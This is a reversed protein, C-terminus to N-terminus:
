TALKTEFKALDDALIQDILETVGEGRATQLVVDAQEKLSQVANAVAVSCGSMELFSFDNEADGVSVVNQPAIGMEDLTAQLGTAKDVGSPLVMVSGKNLIVQQDLGLDRIASVTAAEHPRWTAIITRGLVFPIKRAQLTAVLRADPPGCLLTEAGTAPDYLLGGNEVVVRDFLDLDPFVGRLDPLHRGTVMVLKRGGNRLRLLAQLTKGDVRGDTALTGDYDTALVLFRM